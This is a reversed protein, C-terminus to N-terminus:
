HAFWPTQDKPAYIATYLKIGDRMPIMQETKTYNQNLWVENLEQALSIFPLLFAISIFVAVACFQRTATKQFKSIYFM